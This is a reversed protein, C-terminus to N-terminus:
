VGIGSLSRKEGEKQSIGYKSTFKKDTNDNKLMKVTPNNNQNSQMNNGGYRNEGYGETKTHFKAAYLCATGELYM